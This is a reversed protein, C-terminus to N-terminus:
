QFIEDETAGWQRLQREVIGAVAKFYRGIGQQGYVSPLPLSRLERLVEELAARSADAERLDLQEAVPLRAERLAQVLRAVRPDSRGTDRWRSRNYHDMSERDGLPRKIPSAADSTCTYESGDPGSRAFTLPAGCVVCKQDQAPTYQRELATLDEDTLRPSPM